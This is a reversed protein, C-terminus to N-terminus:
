VTEQKSGQAFSPKMSSVERALKVHWFFWVFPHLNKPDLDTARLRLLFCKLHCESAGAQSLLSKKSSYTRGEKKKKSSSGLSVITSAIAISTKWRKILNFSIDLTLLESYQWKWLFTFRSEPLIYRGLVQAAWFCRCLGVKCQFFPLM